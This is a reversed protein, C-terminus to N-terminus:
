KTNFVIEVNKVIDNLRDIVIGEDEESGLSLDSLTEKIM